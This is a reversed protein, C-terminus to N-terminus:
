TLWKDPISTRNCETILFSTITEPSRNVGGVVGFGFFLGEWVIPICQTRADAGGNMQLHRDWWHISVAVAPLAFFFLRRPAESDRRRFNELSGLRDFRFRSSDTATKFTRSGVASSQQNSYPLTSPLPPQPTEM